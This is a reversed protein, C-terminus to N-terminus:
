DAGSGEGARPGGGAPESAAARGARAQAALALELAGLAGAYEGAPPVVAAVGLNATAAQLLGVLAPSDRLCSGGYVATAVGEARALAGCLCGLNWGVLVLLGLALDERRARGAERALRAFFSISMAQPVPSEGEPYVDSILLDIRARDGTAALASLAAVDSTGCLLAGLGELTGGGLGTGGARRVFRGSDVLLASCGTGVSVALWRSRALQPDAATLLVRSGEAWADFEGIARAGDGHERALQAGGGGTAGLLRCRAAALRERLEGRADRPLWGFRTEAGAPRLAYKTLTSGVDVGAVGTTASM